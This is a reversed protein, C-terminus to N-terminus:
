GLLRQSLESLPVESQERTKLNKVQVVGKAKEDAGMIVAYQINKSEAYKFQKDLKVPQYYMESNVGAERMTTVLRVYDEMLQEDLNIVIAKIVSPREVMQQAALVDFLRTFGISGGVAPVSTDSFKDVLDDYRGGGTISGFEPKNPLVIEFVVGTYYDLGRMILPDFVIKGPDIGQDQVLAALTRLAEVVLSDKALNQEINALAKEGRGLDVLMQAQKIAAQSVGKEELLKIAGLPGIKDVKDLARMVEQGEGEKAGAELSVSSLLDFIKRDNFRVQYDNIGIAELAQALCAIVEADSIPSPGGVVDIDCQFFERERGRQPNDARWVPGIQYRKFPFTLQNKNQAVYRALSVTLDYRLAVERGGNDQFSYILKEDEGIKGTLIEKYELTPTYLPLFGFREFVAQIKAFMNQRSVQDEPGYDRFGKLLRPEIM